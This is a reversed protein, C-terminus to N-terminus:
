PCDKPAAQYRSHKRCQRVADKLGDGELGHNKNIHSKFQERDFFDGTDCGRFRCEYHSGTAYREWKGTKMRGRRRAVLAAACEQLRQVNDIEAAWRAFASNIDAITKVGGQKQNYMKRKPEWEDLEVQLGGPHNLRYYPFENYKSQDREMEAHIIEPDTATDAFERASDPITSFFTATKADKKLKRATGISVVIGISSYGHLDEIDQKGTRTPNNAQSFGGDTFEVFGGARANEIRLPEFYFKAATAARAVQWVELQQAKEHNLSILGKKRERRANTNISIDTDTRDSRM